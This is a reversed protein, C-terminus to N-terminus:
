VHRLDGGGNIQIEFAELLINELLQSTVNLCVRLRVLKFLKKQLFPFFIM